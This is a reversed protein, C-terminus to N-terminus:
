RYIRYPQSTPHKKAKGIIILLPKSCNYNDSKGDVLIMRM